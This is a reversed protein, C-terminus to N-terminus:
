RDQWGGQAPCTVAPGPRRGQGGKFHFAQALKVKEISYGFRGSALEYFYRSNAAQEEPLMGGEGSAIGTGSLEAGRAPAVKAEESLAGYSMDSVFLPLELHLPKKARPGITVDAGIAVGDLQPLTALQAALFQISDWSPLRDREVGMAEIPGHSGYAEIGQGAFDRIQGVFREAPTGHPDQYVGQYADRDWGQPHDTVWAQLQDGDIFLGDDEVWSDFRELRENNAYSSTGTDFRYDWNHLGCVLNDGEIRGDALLAGRHLCRGYLVSHDAGDRVIVLDVGDVLVGVPDRDPIDSWTAIKTPQM